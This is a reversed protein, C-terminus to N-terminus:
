GLHYRIGIVADKNKVVDCVAGNEVPCGSHTVVAGGRGDVYVAEALWTDSSVDDVNHGRTQIGQLSVYRRLQIKTAAYCDIKARSYSGLFQYTEGAM